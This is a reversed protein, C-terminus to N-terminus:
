EDDFGFATNTEICEVHDITKLNEEKKYHNENEDSNKKWRYAVTTKYTAEVMSISTAIIWQWVIIADMRKWKVSWPTVLRM